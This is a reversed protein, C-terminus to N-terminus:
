FRLTLGILGALRSGPMGAITSYKKQGIGTVRAYISLNRKFNYNVSVNAHNSKGINRLTRTYYGFEDDSYDLICLRRGGRFEYEAGLTLQGIPHWLIGVTAVRSARDSWKYYAHDPEDSLVGELSAHASLYQGADYDLKVSYYASKLDQQMLIPLGDKIAPTLWASTSCLGGAATLSFGYFSGIRMSLAGDGDIRSEGAGTLPLAYRDLEFMDGITNIMSGSKATIGLAFYSSPLWDVRANFGIFNGADAGSYIDTDASIRGKIKTTNFKFTAGVTFLGRTNNKYDALMTSAPNFVHQGTTSVLHYGVNVGFSAGPSFRYEGNAGFRASIEGLAKDNGYNTVNQPIMLQSFGSQEMGANVGYSFGSDNNGPGSWDVDLKVRHMNQHQPDTVEGPYNFRSLFYSADATLSGVDTVAALNGGISWNNSVLTISEDTAGRLVDMINGSTTGHNFQTWLDLRTKRASLARYGATIGFDESYFYGASLYGRYDPDIYNLQPGPSNLPTIMSTVPMSVTRGKFTLPTADFKKVKLVPSIDLRSAARVEPNLEVTVDVDKTYSQGVAISSGALLTMITSVLTHKM